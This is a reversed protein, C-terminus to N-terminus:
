YLFMIPAWVNEHPHLLVINHINHITFVIIIYLLLVINHITFSCNNGPLGVRFPTDAGGTVYTFRQVNTSSFM